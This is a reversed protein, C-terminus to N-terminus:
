KVSKLMGGGGRFCIYEYYKLVCVYLRLQSIWTDTGNEKEKHNVLEQNNVYWRPLDFWM